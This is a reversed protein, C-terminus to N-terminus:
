TPQKGEIKGDNMTVIRDAFHFARSDHTVVIVAREPQVARDRLLQMIAGGTQADLASTPEDCVVVRPDHVLARAIAVRQQEGGSLQPPFAHLRHALGLQKLLEAARAVAARRRQGLIILPVASNEAATLAPLLNFQQFVFGINRARFEVKERGSLENLSEGLVTVAGDTPELIGAVVSLLTTKGCGSPGVLLTMQGFGIELDIGRLARVRTEGTGFDKTVGRCTIALAPRPHTGM